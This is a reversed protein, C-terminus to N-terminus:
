VFVSYNRDICIISKQKDRKRNNKEKRAKKKFSQTKHKEKYRTQFNSVIEVRESIARSM